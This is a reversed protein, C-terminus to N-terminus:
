NWTRHVEAIHEMGDYDVVIWEVGYPIDVVKLEAYKGDALEKLEEVVQVLAPDDRPIDRDYFNNTNTFTLDSLQLYRDVAEASLGFGGYCVNIVIKM